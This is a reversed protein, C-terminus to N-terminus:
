EGSPSVEQNTGAWRRLGSRWTRVLEEWRRKSVTRDEPEPTRPSPPASADDDEPAPREGRVRMSAFEAYEPTAKTSAVANRRKALRREWDEESAEPLPAEATAAAATVSSSSACTDVYLGPKVPQSFGGAAAHNTNASGARPRKGHLAEGM